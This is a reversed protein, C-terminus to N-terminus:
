LASPVSSRTPASLWINMSRFGAPPVMAGPSNGMPTALALASALLTGNARATFSLERFRDTSLKPVCVTIAATAAVSAGVPLSAAALLPRLNKTM